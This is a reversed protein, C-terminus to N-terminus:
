RGKVTAKVIRIDDESLQFITFIEQELAERKDEGNRIADVLVEINASREATLRPFPLKEIDGRLVKHTSCRKKFIFQFVASNLFGLAVKISIGPISPILINASNLTLNRKDDYAFVLSNSIFKYILKESARYMEEKAVQQFVGSEFHIYSQPQNLMFESVDSGRFIPEMGPEPVRCLFKKNNGTVVGLAWKANRALTLHDIAYLQRLIREDSNKLGIDFTCDPNQMFRAQELEDSGRGPDDIIVRWDPEPCGKILDIRVVGSFVGSFVRGLKRIRVIKSNELLFARISAHTKINLISEPLLFSLRGGDRLLRMAKRLFLSFAEASGFIAESKRHSNRIAGWPPNTAVFDVSDLFSNTDCFMEGTAFETLADLCRVQPKTNYIPFALLLNMCAIRVAIEDSDVGYIQNPRLKLVIAASLLFSGTGCCPDLFSTGAFDSQKLAEEVIHTPTYYSGSNYKSGEKCLSQYLLGLFDMEGTPEVSSYVLEYGDHRDDLCLTKRWIEFEDRVAHRKWSHLSEFDGMRAGPTRIVEGHLEMVRLSAVYMTEPLPLGNQRVTCAIREIASVSEPLRSYETPTITADSRSKNARSRLRSLSGSLITAKLRLADDELFVLPRQAAPTLYGTKVWNRVTASSVGIMSAVNGLSINKM